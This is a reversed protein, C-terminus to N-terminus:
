QYGRIEKFAAVLGTDNANFTKGKTLEAVGELEGSNAEGFQVVFAPISALEPNSESQKSFWETFQTYNWGENTEGDTFLVVSVFNDPNAKKSKLAEEYSKKLADYMATGGDAQLSDIYRTADKLEADRNSETFSFEEVNKVGSAFDVYQVTERNQFSVFSSEKGTSTMTKLAGQLDSIRDGGMSGSTDITFVMNSPKKIEGLYTSILSQVADLKNPFPLEFATTSGPSAATNRNTATSIEAQVDDKTLYDVATDYLEKKEADVGTLLTLPYDATIIGDSPAIITLPKDDVQVSKLVSEYNFIGDAKEPSSSFTDALWGSSGSTLTQGGFLAKLDGSVSDVTDVTLADGTGSLATTAEILASFGSNSSVPSTMGYTLEGATVAGVIDGWTPTTSNWGLREAVDSKVGLVVPSSMIKTETQVKESGGELLALYRNSPFWTADYQSGANGSAVEQTGELTGEYTFELHIGTASEMKQLIPQMDKVESGALVHLTKAEDYSPQTTNASTCGAATVSLALVATVAILTKRLM